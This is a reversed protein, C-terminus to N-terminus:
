DVLRRRVYAGDISVTWWAVVVTWHQLYVSPVWLLLLVDMREVREGGRVGGLGVARAGDTREVREGGRVGGLDVDTVDGWPGGWVGDKEQGKAVGLGM